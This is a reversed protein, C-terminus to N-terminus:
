RLPVPPSVEIAPAPDEPSPFSTRLPDGLGSTIWSPIALGDPRDVSPAPPATTDVEACAVLTTAVAALVLSSVKSLTRVGARGLAHKVWNSLWFIIGALLMIIGGLLFGFLVSMLTISLAGNFFKEKLSVTLSSM